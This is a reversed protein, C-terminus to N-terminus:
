RHVECHVICLSCLAWKLACICLRVFAWHACHGGEQCQLLGWETPALCEDVLQDILILWRDTRIM